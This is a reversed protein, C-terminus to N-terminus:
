RSFKRAEDLRLIQAASEMAVGRRAIAAVREFLHRRSRLFEAQLIEPDGIVAAARDLRASEIFRTQADLERANPFQIGFEFIELEEGPDLAVDEAIARKIKGVFDQSLQIVDDGRHM